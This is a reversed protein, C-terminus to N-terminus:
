FMHLQSCHQQVQSCDPLWYLTFVCEWHQRGATSLATHGVTSTEILV